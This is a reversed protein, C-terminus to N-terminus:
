SFRWKNSRRKSPVIKSFVSISKPIRLTMKLSLVGAPSFTANKCFCCFFTAFNIKDGQFEFINASIPTLAVLIDQELTWM